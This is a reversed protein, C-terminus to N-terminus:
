GAVAFQRPLPVYITSGVAIDWDRDYERNFASTLRLQNELIHLTESTLWDIHVDYIPPLLITKEGLVWLLREIDLEFGLRRLFARRDLM